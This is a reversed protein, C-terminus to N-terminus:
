ESGVLSSLPKASDPLHIWGELRAAERAHEPIPLTMGRQYARSTLSAVLADFIHADAAQGRVGVQEMCLRHIDASLLIHADRCAAFFADMVDAVTRGRRWAGWMALSGVPYVEIVGDSGDRAFGRGHATAAGSVYAWYAATAGLMNTAVSFPWKGDTTVRLIEDHVAIDTRRWLLADGRGPARSGSGAGRWAQQPSAHYAALADVWALPWGFPVDVAVLADEERARKVLDVLAGPELRRTVLVEPAGQASWHIRVAATAAATTSLDIGLTLESTGM